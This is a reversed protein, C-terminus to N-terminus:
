HVAPPTTFQDLWKPPCNPIISLPSYFVTQGKVWGYWQQTEVGYLNYPFHSTCFYLRVRQPPLSTSFSPIDKLQPIALCITTYTPSPISNHEFSYHVPSIGRSNSHDRPFSASHFSCFWSFMTCLSQYVTTCNFTISKEM